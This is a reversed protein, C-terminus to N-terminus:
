TFFNTINQSRYYPLATHTFLAHVTRHPTHFVIERFPSLNGGVQGPIARASPGAPAYTKTTVLLSFGHGRFADAAFSILM